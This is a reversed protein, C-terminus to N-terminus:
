RAPANGAARITFGYKEFVARGQSGATFDVFRQAAANSSKAARALSYTIEPGNTVTWAIRVDKSIAADTKYVVGVPVSGTAVAALAARVDLTPVVKPEIEKWLGATELWKKAYIGAPVAAPDALALKSFKTLDAPAGVTARSERPVIVVLLNSLFERRDDRRVLGSKELDDMKATDASFFIDAPAGAKIQRALDSSAGFSFRPTAHTQAEFAKGIEQLAGTLSAAAFVLIEQARAAKASLVLFLAALVARLTKM